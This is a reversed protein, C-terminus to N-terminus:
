QNLGPEHMPELLRLNTVIHASRQATEDVRDDQANRTASTRM